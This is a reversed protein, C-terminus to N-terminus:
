RSSADPLMPPCTGFPVTALEFHWWENAYMRCLGYRNGNAELWAAGEAPGVDIARGQVHTSEDPPLVWPRAAEPSGYTALGQEWLQEQEEPSRYGSTIWLQVGNAHADAEAASYAAALDPDLGGTGAASGAAPAATALGTIGFAVTVLLPLLWAWRKM